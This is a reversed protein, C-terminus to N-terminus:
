VGCMGECEDNFLDIQRSNSITELDLSELPQLSQHVFLKYTHTKAGIRFGNKIEQDVSMAQAWSEPDRAKMAHWEKNSRYPCFTCASRPPTPYGNRAMWEICHGRTMERDVLPWISEIYHFRSPKMRQIEDLSIGIWQKVQIGPAARQRFELGLLERIKKTIPTVKYDATCNRRLIGPGGSETETWWPVKRLEDRLGTKHMVRYVPFPLRRELWDLWTYVEGPEAGTDAFIACDPLPEIEGHAAMLAMTSSQVGAGLSIVHLTM